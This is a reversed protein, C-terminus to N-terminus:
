GVGREILDKTGSAGKVAPGITSHRVCFHALDVIEHFPPRRRRVAAGGTENPHTAGVSLCREGPKRRFLILRLNKLSGDRDNDAVIQIEGALKWLKQRVIGLDHLLVKRSWAHGLHRCHSVPRQLASVEDDSGPANPSSQPGMDPKSLAPTSLAKKEPVRIWDFKMQLM